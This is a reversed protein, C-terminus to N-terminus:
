PVEELQISGSSGDELTTPFTRPTGDATAIQGVTGDELTLEIFEGPDELLYNFQTGAIVTVPMRWGAAEADTDLLIEGATGDELTVPMATATCAVTETAGSVDFPFDGADDLDIRGDSADELEVPLSTSEGVTGGGLLEDFREVLRAYHDEYPDGAGYALPTLESLDVQAGTEDLHHYVYDTPVPPFVSTDYLRVLAFRGAPELDTIWLWLGQDLQTNIQEGDHLKGEWYGDRVRTWDGTPRFQESWQYDRVAIRDELSQGYWFASLFSRSPTGNPWPAGFYAAVTSPIDVVDIPIDLAQGAAPLGPQFQGPGAMIAQVHTGWHKVSTKMQPAGSDELAFISPWPEPYVKGFDDAGTKIGNNEIGNDSIFLVTLRARVEAPITDLFRGLEADVCEHMAQYTHWISNQGGGVAAERKDLYEQTYVLDLPPFDRELQPFFPGHCASLACYCFGRRGETHAQTFFDIAADFCYTTQYTDADPYASYYDVNNPADNSFYRRYSGLSAGTDYPNPPVPKQAPNRLQSKIYEIGSADAIRALVEWGIGADGNYFLQAPDDEFPSTSLHTKGIFGLKITPDHAALVSFITATEYGPDLFENLGGADDKGGTDARAITGLGHVFPYQGSMISARTPSCVPAARVSGFRVGSEALASVRPMYPVLNSTTTAAGDPAPAQEINHLYSFPGIPGMDDVLVILFHRGYQEAEADPVRFPEVVAIPDQPFPSAVGLISLASAMLLM